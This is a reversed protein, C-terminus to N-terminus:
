PSVSATKMRMAKGWMNRTTAGCPYRVDRGSPSTRKRVPKDGNTQAEDGNGDASKGRVGRGRTNNTGRGRGRPRGKIARARTSGVAQTGGTRRVRPKSARGHAYASYGLVQGPQYEDGSDNHDDVESDSDSDSDSGIVSYIDRESENNHGYDSHAASTKHGEDAREGCTDTTRCDKENASSESERSQAPGAHAEGGGGELSVNDQMVRKEVGQAVAETKPRKSRASNTSPVAAEAEGRRAQYQGSDIDTPSINDEISQGGYEYGDEGDGDSDSVERYSVAKRKRARSTERTARERTREGYKRALKKGRPRRTRTMEPGSYGGSGSLGDGHSGDGRADDSYGFASSGHEPTTSVRVKGQRVRDKNHRTGRGRHTPNAKARPGDMASHWAARTTTGRPPLDAVTARRTRHREKGGGVGGKVSARKEKASAQAGNEDLTGKCAAKTRHTDRRHTHQIRETGKPTMSRQQTRTGAYESNWAARTTVHPVWEEAWESASGTRNIAGSEQKPYRGRPRRGKRADEGDSGDATKATAEDLATNASVSVGSLRRDEAAHVPSVGRAPALAHQEGAAVTTHASEQVASRTTDMGCVVSALVDGPETQTRAEGRHTQTDGTSQVETDAMAVCGKGPPQVDGETSLGTVTSVKQSPKHKHKQKHVASQRHTQTHKTDGTPGDERVPQHATASGLACLSRWGARTTRGTCGRERGVFYDKEMGEGPTDKDTSTRQTVNATEEISENNALTDAASDASINGPTNSPGSVTVHTPSSNSPKALVHKSTPGPVHEQISGTPGPMHEQISCTPGPVQEQITGTPGPVHEQISGTPGPVHEQISSTRGPVHEQISGTPGPAHEQISGTPGPVHEQISGTPGPVLEQISGTPGPVHEQKSGAPDTRESEAALATVDDSLEGTTNDSLAGVAESGVQVGNEPSNSFRDVSSKASLQGGVHVPTDASAHGPSPVQAKESLAVLVGGSTGHSPSYLLKSLHVPQKEPSIDSMKVSPNALTEGPSRIWMSCSVNETVPEDSDHAKDCLNDSLIDSSGEMDYKATAATMPPLAAWACEPTSESTHGVMQDSVSDSICRPTYSMINDTENEWTKEPVCEPGKKGATDYEYARDVADDSVRELAALETRDVSKESVKQVSSDSSQAVEPTCLNDSAIESVVDLVVRSSLDDAVGESFDGDVKADANDRVNEMASEMVSELANEMVSEKVSEMMGTAVDPSGVGLVKANASNARDRTHPGTKDEAPRVAVDKRIASALIKERREESLPHAGTETDPVLIFSGTTARTGRGAGGLVSRSEISTQAPTTINTASDGTVCVSAEEAPCVSVDGDWDVLEPDSAECYATARTHARVDEAAPAMGDRENGHTEPQLTEAADEQTHRRTAAAAHVEKGCDEATQVVSDGTDWSLLRSPLQGYPLVTVQAVGPANLVWDFVGESSRTKEGGDGQCPQDLAGETGQAWVGDGPPPQNIAQRQHDTRSTDAAGTEKAPGNQVEEPISWDAVSRVPPTMDGERDALIHDGAEVVTDTQTCDYAHKTDSGDNREASLRNIAHSARVVVDGAGVALQNDSVQACGSPGKTEAEEMCVDAEGKVAVDVYVDAEGKEAVDMCVDAEGKETAKATEAESEQANEGLAMGGVPGGESGRRPGEESGRRAVAASQHAHVELRSMETTPTDTTPGGVTPRVSGMLAKSLGLVLEADHVTPQQEPVAAATVSPHTRESTGFVGQTGCQLPGTEADVQAPAQGERGVSAYTQMYLDPSRRVGRGPEGYGPTGDRGQGHSPKVSGHALVCETEWEAADDEVTEAVPIARDHQPSDDVSVTDGLSQIPRDQGPLGTRNTPHALVHDTEHTQTRMRQHTLRDAATRERGGVGAGVGTPVHGSMRHYPLNDYRNDGTPSKVRLHAAGTPYEGEDRPQTVPERERQVEDCGAEILTDYSRVTPTDAHAHTHVSAHRCVCVRQECVCVEVASDYSLLSATRERVDGRSAVGLRHRPAKGPGVKIGSETSLHWHASGSRSGRSSNRHLDVMSHSPTLRNISRRIDNPMGARLSPSSSPISRVGIYSHASQPRSQARQQNTTVHMSTNQNTGHHSVPSQERQQNTSVHMATNQNTGHYSVPSQARQQNTTVHIVTNQNTGHYSVPSQARQQNISAHMAKNQNTGHYSVPSQARQQNTSAHMAKNQNTGHCSVPSQARQLSTTVHLETNQNTGHYSVPSQARQQNTTVHMATNQNTGHYLAPAQARQQNATAHMATNQNTGHHSVPSQARQQNTTAHMGTGTYQNSGQYSVPSRVRQQDTTTRMETNQNTGQYLGTNQNASVEQVSHSNANDTANRLTRTPLTENAPSSRGMPSRSSVRQLRTPVTERRPQTEQSQVHQEGRNHAAQYPYTSYAGAQSNSDADGPTYKGSHEQDATQPRGEGYARTDSHTVYERERLGASHVSIQPSSRGAVACRVAEASPGDRASRRSKVSGSGHSLSREAILTGTRTSPRTATSVRPTTTHMTRTDTCMRQTQAYGRTDTSPGQTDKYSRQHQQHRAYSDLRADSHAPHPQPVHVSANYLRGRDRYSRESDKYPREGDKYSRDEQPYVGPSREGVGRDVDSRGEQRMRLERQRVMPGQEVTHREWPPRTHSPQAYDRRYTRVHPSTGIIEIGSNTNRSSSAMDVRAHNGEVGSPNGHWSDSYTDREDRESTRSVQYPYASADESGYGLVHVRTYTPRTTVVRDAVQEASKPSDYTARAQCSHLIEVSSSNSGGGDVVSRGVRAQAPAYAPRVGEAMYTPTYTSSQTRELMSMRGRGNGSTRSSADDAAITVLDTLISLVRSHEATQHKTPDLLVHRGIAM